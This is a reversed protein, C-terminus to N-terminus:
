KDEEFVITSGDPYDNYTAETVTMHEGICGDKNGDETDEALRDCQWVDIHFQQPHVIPVLVKGAPVYTIFSPHYEHGTVTAPRGPLIEPEDSCGALTLSGLGIATVAAIRM